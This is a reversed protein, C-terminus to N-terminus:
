DSPLLPLGPSPVDLNSQVRAVGKLQERFASAMKRLRCPPLKARAGTDTSFFFFFFFHIGGQMQARECGGWFGGALGGGGDLM